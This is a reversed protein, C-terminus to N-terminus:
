EGIVSRAYRLMASTPEDSTCGSVFEWFRLGKYYSHTCEVEWVKRPISMLQQHGLHYGVSSPPLILYGKLDRNMRMRRITLLVHKRVTEVTTNCQEAVYRLITPTCTRLGYRLEIYRKIALRMVPKRRALATDIAGDVASILEAEQQRSISIFMEKRSYVVGFVDALLWAHPPLAFQQLLLEAQERINQKREVRKADIHFFEGVTRAGHEDAFAHFTKSSPAALVLPRAMLAPSRWLGQRGGSLMERGYSGAPFSMVGVVEWDPYPRHMHFLNDIM